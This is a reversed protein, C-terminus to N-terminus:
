GSARGDMYKGLHGHGMGLKTDEKSAIKKQRLSLAGMM